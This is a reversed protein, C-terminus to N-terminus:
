AGNPSIVAKVVRGHEVDSLAQGIEDMTYIRGIMDEWTAPQGAVAQEDRLIDVAKYFHSFDIGWTGRIDLHKKNIDTHPNISVDGGDTYHGVIVYRGAERVMALGEKVAAPAGAAEIVVDPGRGQTAGRVADIHATPWDYNVHVPVLGFREAVALRAESRDLIFVEGAGSRRALIAACLGVPGAGQVAVTDGVQVGAREVAHLATPLACGGAILRLPSVEKPLKVVRVDARLHIREAWGGFLGETSSHTVGYVKRQPCKTSAKAVMCHWCRNCTNHVDLFTVVDGEVIPQGNLDLVEGGTREVRGSSIHGPIIPYPVGSLRSHFLHVDTGCVESYITSLLMEGPALEPEPLDVLEVPRGAGHMVAAKVM